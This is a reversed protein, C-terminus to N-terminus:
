NGAPKQAPFTQTLYEVLSDVQGANLPGGEAQAFAPMMTGVKGHLVWDRWYAVNTEHKPQRLDPVTTARQPSDHCVGCVSAYLERGSKDKAPEAHCKACDGRFVAQRDAQAVKQNMERESVLPIPGPKPRPTDTPIVARVLLTREGKDAHITLSKTVSGIKGALNMTANIQGNSGPALVWPVSPLQAVTCGCSTSVSHITVNESSVNTVSFTFFAELEPPKATYEKVPADWALITDAIETGPPHAQPLSHEIPTPAAPSTAARPVPNLRTPLARVVKQTSQGYGATALACLFLLSFRGFFRRSIRGNM